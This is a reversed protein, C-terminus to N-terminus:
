GAAYRSTASLRTVDLGNLGLTIQAALDDPLRDFNMVSRLSVVWCFASHGATSPTCCFVGRHRFTSCYQDCSIRRPCFCLRSQRCVPIPWGVESRVVFSTIVHLSHPSCPKPLASPARRYPDACCLMCTERPKIRVQKVALHLSRSSM